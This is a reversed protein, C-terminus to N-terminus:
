RGFGCRLAHFTITQSGEVFLCVAVPPEPSSIGRRFLATQGSVADPQGFAPRLGSQAPSREGSHPEESACPKFGRRGAAGCNLGGFPPAIRPIPSFNVAFGAVPDPDSLTGSGALGPRAANPGFSERWYSELAPLPGNPNPHCTDKGEIVRL